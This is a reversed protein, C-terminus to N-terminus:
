PGVRPLEVVTAPIAAGGSDECELRTGSEAHEVRAFGLGILGLSPSRCASTVKGTTRGGAVLPSGEAPGKEGDFRLGVLLHNVAGRSHLRAVIEQGTYCGKTRSIASELRAEDPFVSEDLEAGLLPIGAEVRLVELTDASAVPVGLTSLVDSQEGARVFLQWATEGSFGFRAAVIEVGGVQTTVWSEGPVDPVGLVSTSEPGELSLRVFDGTRDTLKVDDAVIYRDLRELINPVAWASTDLWYGDERALVHLDAVIRGKPTLLAAYCGGGSPLAATENTVMGDLWRAADGGTVSVVGRAHAGAGSLVFLCAQGRAAEVEDALDTM